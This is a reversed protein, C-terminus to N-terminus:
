LVTHFIREQCRQDHAKANTQGACGLRDVQADVDVRRGRYNRCGDDNLLPPVAVSIPITVAIPFALFPFFVVVTSRYCDGLCRNSNAPMPVPVVVTMTVPFSTLPFIM